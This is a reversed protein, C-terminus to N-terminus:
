EWEEIALYTLVLENAKPDQGVFANADPYMARMAVRLGWMAGKRWEPDHIMPPFTTSIALKQRQLRPTLAPKAVGSPFTSTSEQAAPAAAQSAGGSAQRRGASRQTTATAM